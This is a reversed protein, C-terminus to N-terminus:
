RYQRRKSSTYKSTLLYSTYGSTLLYLIWNLLEEDFSTPYSLPRGAGKANGKWVKGRKFGGHKSIEPPGAQYIKRVTSSKSNLHKLQKEIIEAPPM